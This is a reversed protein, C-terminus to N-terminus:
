NNSKSDIKSKLDDVSYSLESLSDIVKDSDESVKMILSNNEILKEELGKFLGSIKRSEEQKWFEDFYLNIAEKMSDVRWDSFYNMLRDIIVSSFMSKPLLNVSEVKSLEIKLEKEKLLFEEEASQVKLAKEEEDAKKFGERKKEYQLDFDRKLESM